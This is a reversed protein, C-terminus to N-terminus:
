AAERAQGWNRAVLSRLMPKWYTAPPPAPEGLLADAVTTDFIKPLTLQPLFHSLSALIARLRADGTENVAREFLAYTEADTVIAREVGRRRWDAQESWVDYATDVLEGLTLAARGSCLHVTQGTAREDLALRAIAATVYGSTTMDLRHERDGPIMAALGRHYVRLARHVANVQQVDGEMGGCVMTSPRVITWPLRTKRICSEAEYKSQEYANVFGHDRGNDRELMAGTNRGAVFASSVMVFRELRECGSAIEAAHYAGLTNVFRSQDISRSFSIDAAAHVVIATEAEVRKRPLPELGLGPLTVDGHLPTVRGALAGLRRATLQWRLENRVLVFAELGANGTLMQRLVGEGVLGSAGTILVKRPSSM